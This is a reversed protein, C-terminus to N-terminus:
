DNDQENELNLIFIDEVNLQFFLAIKLANPLTPQHKNTTWNSISLPPVGLFKALDINMKKQEALLVKIKNEM